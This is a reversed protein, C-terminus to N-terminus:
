HMIMIRTNTGQLSELYALDHARLDNHLANVDFGPPVPSLGVGPELTLQEMRDKRIWLLMKDFILPEYNSKFFDSQYVQSAASWMAHIAIVDPPQAQIQDEFAGYGEHALRQNTLLASDVVDIADLACCLGLGGVDPASFRITTLGLRQRIQDVRGGTERYREPTAIVFNREIRAGLEPSIYGAAYGQYHTGSAIQWINLRVQGTNLFFTALLALTAFGFVAGETVQTKGESLDTVLFLLVPLIGIFMRGKYGLNPGAIIAFLFYGVVLWFKVDQLIAWKRGLVTAAAAILILGANVQLFDRAGAVHNKLSALLGLDTSYPPNMKAWITNPFIDGFYAYRVATLILFLGITVLGVRLDFRRTESSLLCSMSLAVGLYFITEFRCLLLCLIVLYIWNSRSQYTQCFLTFLVALAVMEMGNLIEALFMPVIALLLLVIHRARAQPIQPKLYTNVAVLLAILAGLTLYQAIYVSIPMRFDSFVFPFGTLFAYLLSSSGEVRESALTLAFEGSQMFTRGFAVTIAADDWAYPGTLFVAFAYGLIVLHLLTLPMFSSRDKNMFLGSNEIIKNTRLYSIGMPTVVVKIGM